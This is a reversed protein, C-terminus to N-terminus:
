LMTDPYGFNRIKLNIYGARFEHLHLCKIGPLKPLILSLNIVLKKYHDM